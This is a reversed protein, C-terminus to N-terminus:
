NVAKKTSCVYKNVAKIQKFEGKFYSLYFIILPIYIQNWPALIEFQKQARNLKIM